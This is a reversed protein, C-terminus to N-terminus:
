HLVSLYTYILESVNPAGSVVKGLAKKCAILEEMLSYNTHLGLFCVSNLYCYSLVDTQELLCSSLEQISVDLHIVCYLM